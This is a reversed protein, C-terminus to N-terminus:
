EARAAALVFCLGQARIAENRLHITSSEGRAEATVHFHHRRQRQKPVVPEDQGPFEVILGDFHQQDRVFFGAIDDDPDLDELEIDLTGNAPVQVHLCRYLYPARFVMSKRPRGDAQTCGAMADKGLRGDCADTSSRVVNYAGRDVLDTRFTLKRGKALQPSSSHEALLRNWTVALQQEERVFSGIVIVALTVIGLAWSSRTARESQLRVALQLERNSALCALLLLWGVVGVWMAVRERTPTTYVLTVVEPGRFPVQVGPVGRAMTVGELRHTSGDERV